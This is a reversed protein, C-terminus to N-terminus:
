GNVVNLMAKKIEDSAQLYREAVLKADGSLKDSEPKMGQVLEPYAIEFLTTWKLNSVKSLNAVTEPTPPLPNAEDVMRSVTAASVGLLKGLKRYTLPKDGGLRQMEDLLLQRFTYPAM